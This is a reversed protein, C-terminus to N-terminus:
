DRRAHTAFILKFFITQHIPTLRAQWVNRTMDALTPLDFPAQSRFSNAYCSLKASLLNAFAVLLSKRASVARARPIRAPRWLISAREHCPADDDKALASSQRVM